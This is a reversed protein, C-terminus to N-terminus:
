AGNSMERRLRRSLTASSVGLFEAAERASGCLQQVRDIYATEFSESAEELNYTSMPGVPLPPPLSMTLDDSLADPPQGLLELERETLRKAECRHLLELMSLGRFDFVRRLIPLWTTSGPNKVIEMAGQSRLSATQAETLGEGLVVTGVVQQARALARLIGPAEEARTVVSVLRHTRAAVVVGRADELQLIDRERLLNRIAEPVNVLLLKAETPLGHRQLTAAIEPSLLTTMEAETRM